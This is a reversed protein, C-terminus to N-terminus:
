RIDLAIAGLEETKEAKTEGPDVVRGLDIEFRGVPLVSPRRPIGSPRDGDEFLKKLGPEDGEELLSRITSYTQQPSWELGGRRDWFDARGLTLTLLSGEGWIMVGFTGNGQLMGTHTRPLPFDWEYTRNM